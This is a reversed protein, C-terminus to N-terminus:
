KTTVGMGALMEKCTDCPVLIIWNGMIRIDFCGCPRKNEIRGEAELKDLAAQQEPNWPTLRM